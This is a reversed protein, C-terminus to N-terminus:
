VPSPERLMAELERVGAQVGATQMAQISQPNRLFKGILSPPAGPALAGNRGVRVLDVSTLLWQAGPYPQRKWWIYNEEVNLMYPNGHSAFSLVLARRGDNCYKVPGITNPLDLVTTGARTLIKPGGSLNEILASAEGKSALLEPNVPGNVTGDPNM